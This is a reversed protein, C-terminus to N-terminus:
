RECVFSGAAFQQGCFLQLGQSRSSRSIIGLPGPGLDEHQPGSTYLKELCREKTSFIAWFAWNLDTRLIGVLGFQILFSIWIHKNLNKQPVIMTNNNYPVALLSATSIPTRDHLCVKAEAQQLWVCAPQASSLQAALFMRVRRSLSGSTFLFVQLVCPRGFGTYLLAMVFCAHWVTM